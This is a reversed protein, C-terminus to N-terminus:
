IKKTLAFSYGIMPRCNINIWLLNLDFDVTYLICSLGQVRNDSGNLLWKM